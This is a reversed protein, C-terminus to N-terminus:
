MVVGQQQQERSEERAHTHTHEAIKTMTGIMTKQDHEADRERRIALFKVRRDQADLMLSYGGYAGEM